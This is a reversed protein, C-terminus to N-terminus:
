CTVSESMEALEALVIDGGLSDCLEEVRDIDEDLYDRRYGFTAPEDDDVPESLEGWSSFYDVAESSLEDVHDAIVDEEDFCDCEDRISELLALLERLLGKPNETIWWKQQLTVMRQAHQIASSDASEPPSIKNIYDIVEQPDVERQCQAWRRIQAPTDSLMSLPIMVPGGDDCLLQYASKWTTCIRTSDLIRADLAHKAYIRPTGDGYAILRQQMRTLDADIYVVYLENKKMRNKLTTKKM